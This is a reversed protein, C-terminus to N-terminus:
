LLDLTKIVAATDSLDPLLADPGHQLLDDPSYLRGTAVALVRAGSHKACDIDNPTDGIVIFQSPQLEVGLYNRIREFALAPLDRRDHSEDGFSGPLKFFQSLGVLEMKFYAAPEINGTLLASQYLPHADVAQLVERVGPLLHFYQGGAATVRKMEEMYRSRLPEIRERIHEHTFGESRLAEAVIQLDTMGSVRMEHLKGATGFVAELVPITYDKFADTRTSRILTGDIDWLLVRLSSPHLIFSSPNGAKLRSEDTIIEGDTMGSHNKMREGEDKM